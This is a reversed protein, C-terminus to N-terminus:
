LGPTIVDSSGLKPIQAVGRSFLVPDEKKVNAIDGHLVQMSVTLASTLCLVKSIKNVLM